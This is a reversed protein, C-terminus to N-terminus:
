LPHVLVRPRPRRPTGTPLRDRHRHDAGARSRRGKHRSFTSPPNGFTVAPTSIVTRELGGGLLASVRIPGAAHVLRRYSALYLDTKYQAFANEVDRMQLSATLQVSNRGDFNFAVRPSWELGPYNPMLTGAVDLGVEVPPAASQASADRALLGALLVLTAILPQRM